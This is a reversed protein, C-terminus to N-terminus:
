RRHAPGGPQRLAALKTALEDRSAVAEGHVRVNLPLRNRSLAAQWDGSNLAVRGEISMEGSDLLPSLVAALWGAVYGLMREADEDEEEEEEGLYVALALPDHANSPERRLTVVAGGLHTPAAGGQMAAAANGQEMVLKGAQTYHAGVIEVQYVESWSGEEQSWEGVPEQLGLVDEEDQEQEQEKTAVVAAAVPMAAAGTTLRQRLYGLEPFKGVIRDFEGHDVEGRQLAGVGDRMIEEGLASATPTTEITALRRCLRAVAANEQLSELNKATLGGRKKKKALKKKEKTGNSDAEAASAVTKEVLALVGELSPPEAQVLLAAAKVPGIGPVGPIGDANDGMMAQYDVFSAAQIGDYRCACTLVCACM